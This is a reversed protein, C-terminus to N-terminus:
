NGSPPTRMLDALRTLDSGFGEEVHRAANHRANASKNQNLKFTSAVSLIELRFPQIMRLFRATTDESMKDMTWPMKGPIFDEFAASQRALMGPLEEPQLPHLIGSLHVAVYNWTPVQDELGYWDPSVYGDPGTIALTVERPVRCARAIPNSRTLHLDITRGDEALLFPVHALHPAGETSLCLTGFARSRAFDLAVTEDTQRFAPNTHM